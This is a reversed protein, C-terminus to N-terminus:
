VLTVRISPYIKNEVTMHKMAVFPNNLESTSPPHKTTRPTTAKHYFKNERLNKM